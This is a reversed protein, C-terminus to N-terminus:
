IKNANNFWYVKPAIYKKPLLYGWVVGADTFWKSIFCIQEVLSKWTEQVRDFLISLDLQFLPDILAELGTLDYVFLRVYVAAPTNIECADKRRWKM